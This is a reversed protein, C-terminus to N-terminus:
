GHRRREKSLIRTIIAPLYKWGYVFFTASQHFEGRQHGTQNQYFIAFIFQKNLQAQM